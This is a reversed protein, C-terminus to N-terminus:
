NEENMWTAVFQLKVESELDMEQSDPHLEDRKTKLNSDLNRDPRRWATTTLGDGDPRRRWATTLCVDYIKVIFTEKKKDGIM